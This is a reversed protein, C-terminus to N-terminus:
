LFCEFGYKTYGAQICTGAINQYRIEFSADQMEM